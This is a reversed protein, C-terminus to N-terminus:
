VGADGNPPLIPEQIPMQESLIFKILPFDKQLNAMFKRFEYMKMITQYCNFVQQVVTKSVYFHCMFSINMGRLILLQTFHIIQVFTNILQM